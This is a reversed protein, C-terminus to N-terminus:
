LSDDRMRYLKWCGEKRFFFLMQEDTDQKVLKVTVNTPSSSTQSLTLGDKAQQQLSPMLPFHLESLGLVKIVPKPEPEASADVSEIQLPQAVFVKQVEVHNAFSTLFREFDEAPCSPSARQAARAAIRSTPSTPAADCATAILAIFLIFLNKRVPKINM